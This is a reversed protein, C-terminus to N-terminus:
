TLFPLCGARKAVLELFDSAPVSRPELIGDIVFLVTVMRSIPDFDVFSDNWTISWHASGATALRLGQLVPECREPTSCMDLFVDLADLEPERAQM